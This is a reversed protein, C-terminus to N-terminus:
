KIGGEYSIPQERICAASVVFDLHVDSAQMPVAPLIQFEFALGATAGLMGAGRKLLRDIYGKGHGLRGGSTDFAVGPVILLDIRVDDAWAPSAPEPVRFPGRVMATGPELRCFRYVRLAADFAPVLVCKGAGHATAIIGSTQVEDPLALYCGLVGANAFRDWETVLSQVQNSERRIWDPELESRRQSMRARLEQKSENM